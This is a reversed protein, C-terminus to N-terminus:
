AGFPEPMSPIAHASISALYRVSTGSAPSPPRCISALRPMIWSNRPRAPTDGRVSNNRGPAYASSEDLRHDLPITGGSRPRAISGNPRRPSPLKWPVQTQRGPLGAASGSPGHRRPRSRASPRRRRNLARSRWCRDRRRRRSGDCRCQNECQVVARRRIRCLCCYLRLTLWQNHPLECVPLDKHLREM